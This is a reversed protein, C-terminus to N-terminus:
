DCGCSPSPSGDCCAARGRECGCVGGHHSCCGSRSPSTPRAGSEFECADAPSAGRFAADSMALTRLPDPLQGVESREGHIPAILLSTTFTLMLVYLRM